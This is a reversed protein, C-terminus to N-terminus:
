LDEAIPARQGQHRLWALLTEALRERVAPRLDQLPALRRAALDAIALPEAKVVLEALHEEVWVPGQDAADPPPRLGHVGASVALHLSEGAQQWPRAPGIVAHRAHLARELDRRRRKPNVFPMVVVVDTGRETVLADPGLAARLGDVHPFPVIAVVLTEPLTWGIAAASRAVTAESSDGRLLMEVVEARRRQEEGARESQEQAYGQASVASLEDIYAFLSEGLALLTEPTLSEVDLTRSIARFTVRAGSRYAALLSELSRGSRVEGRGLAEYVWRSDESLAPERTEPLDLFRNLAVQVGHRIGQGFRGEMPMAYVPVDQPIAAIIEEVVDKLAPRIVESVEVPLRFWPPDNLAYTM